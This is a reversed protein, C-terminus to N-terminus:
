NQPPEEGPAKGGDEAPKEGDAKPADDPKVADDKKADEQVASKKGEAAEQKLKELEKQSVKAAEEAANKAATMDTLAKELEAHSTKLGDREQAVKKLETDVAKRSEVSKKEGDRLTAVQEVAQKHAAEAKDGRDKQAAVAQRETELKKNLEAVQSELETKLKAADANTTEIEAKATDFQTQVEKLKIEMDDADEARSLADQYPIMERYTGDKAKYWITACGNRTGCSTTQCGNKQTPRCNSRPSAEAVMGCLSMLSVTILLRKM